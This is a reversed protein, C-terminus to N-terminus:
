DVREALVTLNPREEAVRSGDPYRVWLRGSHHGADATGVRNTTLNRVIDGRTAEAGSLAGRADQARREAARLNALGTQRDRELARARAERRALERQYADLHPTTSGRTPTGIGAIAAALRGQRSISRSYRRYAM